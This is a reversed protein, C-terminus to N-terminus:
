DQLDTLTIIRMVQKNETILKEFIDRRLLTHISKYHEDKTVGSFYKNFYLIMKPLSFGYNTLDFVYCYVGKQFSDDPSYGWKDCWENYAKDHEASTFYNAAVVATGFHKVFKEVLYDPATVRLKEAPRCVSFVLVTFEILNFLQNKRITNLDLM